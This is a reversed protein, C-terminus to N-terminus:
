LSNLKCCTNMRARRRGPAGRSLTDAVAIVIPSKTAHTIKFGVLGRPTSKLGVGISSSRIVMKGGAYPGSCHGGRVAKVPSSSRETQRLYRRMPSSTFTSGVLQHTDLNQDLVGAMERRRRLDDARCHLGMNMRTVWHHTHHDLNQDIVLHFWTYGRGVTRASLRSQGADVDCWTCGAFCPIDNLTFMDAFCRAYDCVVAVIAGGHEHAQAVPDEWDTVGIYKKGEDIEHLAKCAKGPLHSHREPTASIVDALDRLNQLTPGVQNM